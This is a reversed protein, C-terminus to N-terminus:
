RQGDRAAALRAYEEYDSGLRRKLYPELPGFRALRAEHDLRLRHNYDQIDKASVHYSRGNIASTRGFWQESLSLRDYLPPKTGYQWDAVCADGYNLVMRSREAAARQAREARLREAAEKEKQEVQALLTALQQRLAPTHTHEMAWRVGVSDSPWRLEFRARCDGGYKRAIREAEERRDAAILAEISDREAQEAALRERRQRDLGLLHEEVQVRAVIRNPADGLRQIGTVRGTYETVTLEASEWSGDACRALLVHVSRDGRRQVYTEVEVWRLLPAAVVFAATALGLREGGDDGRGVLFWADPELRDAKPTGFYMPRLGLLGDIGGTFDSGDSELLAFLGDDRAHVVRGDGGGLPVLQPARVERQHGDARRVVVGRGPGRPLVVAAGLGFVTGDSGTLEAAVEGTERLVAFSREGDTPPREAVLLPAPHVAVFPTSWSGGLRRADPEGEITRFSYCDDGHERLALVRPSLAIVDAYAPPLLDGGRNQGLGYYKTASAGRGETHVTRWLDPCATMQGAGAAVIPTACATCLLPLVAFAARRLRPM